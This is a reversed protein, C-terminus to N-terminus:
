GCHMLLPCALTALLVFGDPREPTVGLNELQLRYAMACVEPLNSENVTSRVSLHLRWRIPTSRDASTGTGTWAGTIKLPNPSKVLRAVPYFAPAPSRTSATLTRSRSPSCNSTVM